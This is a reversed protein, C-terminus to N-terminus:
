HSQKRNRYVEYLLLSGAVGLNLSDASGTMPINILCHCLQQQSVSLGKREEGLFILPTQPYAYQQFNNRADLTAGILTAHHRQIWHQLQSVSTYIIRQTFLSGMSARVTGPAYPDTSRDLLIFGAGGVADSTRILTGLNGPSRIRDLVIWSLGCHLPTKHLSQQPIRIIAGIGSARLTTSTQRFQEPTVNICTIGSRRLRRLIQRALTAILLKESYYIAIIQYNHKSAEIFNRVGEAYFLGYAFRSKSGSQLKKILSTTYGTDFWNHSALSKNQM